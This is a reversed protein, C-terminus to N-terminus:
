SFLRSANGILLVPSTPANKGVVPIGSNGLGLAGLAGLPGGRDNGGFM